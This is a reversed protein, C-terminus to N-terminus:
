INLKRHSEKYIMSLHKTRKLQDNYQIDKDISPKQNGRQLTQLYWLLLWFGCKSPCDRFVIDLCFFLCFSM